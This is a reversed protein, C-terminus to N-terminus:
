ILISDHTNLISYISNSYTFSLKWNVTILKSVFFAPLLTHSQWSMNVVHRAIVSSFLILYVTYRIGHISHSYTFSLKWNVTILKSVFVTPLLTHSQWSMNVVHRAIVLVLSQRKRDNRPVFHRLLRM